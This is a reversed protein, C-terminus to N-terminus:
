SRCGDENGRQILFFSFFFNPSVMLGIVRLSGGVVYAEGDELRAILVPWLTHILPLFSNEHRALAPFSSSLLDLLSTRLESSSHTLYHQTLKSINLLLNYTRPAPPPPDSSPDSIQHDTTDKQKDNSSKEDGWPQEPVSVEEDDTEAARHYREQVNKILGVVDDVGCCGKGAKKKLGGEGGEVALQEVKVGEEVIVRLVGFLGDVLRPYGHFMELGGMVAEVTDDLYPLIRGGVLRVMMGLVLPAQPSIEYTNLRLSIANVLYDANAIIMDSATPYGTHHAIANLSTIAHTRLSPHPSAMYHLIPYLCDILETRFAEKQQSAQLVLTELSLAKLRWDIEQEGSTDSLTSIAFDYLQELLDRKTDSSEDGYSLFADMESSSNLASRVMNLTLWLSAIQLDGTENYISNVLDQAATLSTDNSSIAHTLTSLDRVTAVQSKQLAIIDEFEGVELVTSGSATRVVDLSMSVSPLAETVVVGESKGRKKRPDRIAGAVSDRLNRALDRNIMGMDLGLENLLRFSLTVQQIRRQKKSEDASDMLRPLSMIWYHLSEQLTEAFSTSLILLHRLGAEMADEQTTLTLSAELLMSVSDAMSTACEQLLTICLKGLALRVVSRDHTQLKLISALAMKVQPTTANLWKKSLGKGNDEEPLTEVFKDNFLLPLLFTLVNLGKAVVNSSIKGGGVLAKALCSMIGPLFSTGLADRDGLNRVFADLAEVAAVQVVESNGKLLGDELILSVAKGLHPISEVDSALKGNGLARVVKGVSSFLLMSLEESKRTGDQDLVFTYLILLQMGLQQPVDKAWATDLLLLVCEFTLEKTQLPLKELQKLVSSLPFFIYDALKKDLVERSHTSISRLVKLLQDLFSTLDKIKPSGKSPQTESM